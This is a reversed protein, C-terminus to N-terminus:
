LLFEVLLRYSSSQSADVNDRHLSSGKLFKMASDLLIRWAITIDKKMIELKISFGVLSLPHEVHNHRESKKLLIYAPEVKIMSEMTVKLLQDLIELTGDKSGKIKRLFLLDILEYFFNLM